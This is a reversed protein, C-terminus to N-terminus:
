EDISMSVTDLLIVGLDINGSPPVEDDWKRIDYDVPERAQYNNLWTMQFDDSFEDPEDSADLMQAALKWAGKLLITKSDTYKATVNASFSKVCEFGWHKAIKVQETENARIRCTVTEGRPIKNVHLLRSFKRSITRVVSSHPKDAVRCLTSPKWHKFVVFSTCAVVLFPLLTLCKM